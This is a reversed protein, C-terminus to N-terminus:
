NFVFGRDSHRNREYHCDFEIEEAVSAREQECALGFM